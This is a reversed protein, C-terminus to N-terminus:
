CLCYGIFMHHECRVVEHLTCTDALVYTIICLNQNLELSSAAFQTLAWPFLFLFLSAIKSISQVYVSSLLHFCQWLQELTCDLPFVSSLAGLVSNSSIRRLIFVTWQKQCLYFINICKLVQLVSQLSWLIRISTNAAMTVLM